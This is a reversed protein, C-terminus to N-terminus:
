QFQFNGELVYYGISNIRRCGKRVYCESGDNEDLITFVTYEKNSKQMKEVAAKVETTLTLTKANQKELVAEFENISKLLM